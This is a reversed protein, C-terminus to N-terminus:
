KILIKGTRSGQRFIYIGAAPNEVKVGQLNYYEVPEDSDNDIVNDIGTTVGDYVTAGSFSVKAPAGAIVNTFAADAAPAKAPARFSREPTDVSITVNDASTLMRYNYYLQAEVPTYDDKSFAWLAHDEYADASAFHRTDHHIHHVKRYIKGNSYWSEESQKGAAAPLVNGAERDSITGFGKAAPEASHDVTCFWQNRPDESNTAYFADPNSSTHIGTHHEHGTTGEPLPSHWWAGEPLNSETLLKGYAYNGGAEVPAIGATGDSAKMEALSGVVTGLEEATSVPMNDLSLGLYADYWYSHLGHFRESYNEVLVVDDDSSEGRPTPFASSAIQALPTQVFPTTFTYGTEIATATYVTAIPFSYTAYLPATGDEQVPFPLNDITVALTGYDDPTVTLDKDGYRVIYSVKYRDTISEADLEPLNIQGSAKVWNGTNRIAELDTQAQTKFEEATTIGLGNAFKLSIGIEARPGYVYARSSASPMDISNDETVLSLQAEYTRGVRGNVLLVEPMNHDADAVLESADLTYSNADDPLEVTVTEGDKQYVLKADPVFPMDDQTNVTLTYGTIKAKMDDDLSEPAYGNIKVNFTYVDNEVIQAATVNPAIVPFITVVPSEGEYLNADDEYTVSIKYRYQGPTLIGSIYSLNDETQANFDSVEMPTDFTEEKVPDNTYTTGDPDSLYLKYGTLKKTTAIQQQIRYSGKLKTRDGTVREIMAVPDEAALRAVFYYAYSGDTKRASYFSFQRFYKESDFNFNGGQGETVEDRAYYVRNPVVQNSGKSDFTGRGWNHHNSWDASGENREGGWGSWLKYRGVILTNRTNYRTWEANDPVSELDEPNMEVGQRKLENLAEEKTLKKNVVDSDLTFSIGDSTWNHTNSNDVFDIRHRPPWILNYVAQGDEGVDALDGDLIYRKNQTSYAQWGDHWGNTTSAGDTTTNGPYQALNNGVFAVYPVGHVGGEFNGQNPVDIHPTVTLKKTNDNYTISIMTVGNNWVYAKGGRTAVPVEGKGDINTDASLGWEEYSGAGTYKRIAFRTGEQVTFRTLEYENAAGTASATMRYGPNPKWNNFHDGVLYFQPSSPSATVTWLDAVDTNPGSSSYSITITHTDINYDVTAGAPVNRATSAEGGTGNSATLQTPTNATISTTNGYKPDSSLDSGELIKFGTGSTWTADVPVTFTYNPGAIHMMQNKDAVANWGGATVTGVIFVKTATCSSNNHDDVTADGTRTFTVTPNEPDTFDCEFEWIGKTLNWAYTNGFAMDSTSGSTGEINATADKPGFNYDGTWGARERTAFCIAGGNDKVLSISGKFKSSNKTTPNSYVWSLEHAAGTAKNESTTYRFFLRSPVNTTTSTFTVTPNSSDSYDIKFTYTGEPLKWCRTNGKVVKYAVGAEAPLDDDSSDPGYNNNGGWGAASKDAFCIYNNGTTGTFTVPGGTFSKGDESKITTQSYVWSGGNNSYRYYLVAPVNDDVDATKTFTVTPHAADTFDCVFSYTGKPLKWSNTNGLAMEYTGESVTLNSSAGRPGYNDTGSWGNYQKSAFCILGGNEGTFTASATFKDGSKAMNHGFSWVDEGSAAGTPNYRFFLEEPVKAPENGFRLTKESLNLTVETGAPIAINTTIDSGNSVITIPTGLTTVVANSGYKNKWASNSTLLMKTGLNINSPTTLTYANGDTTSFKWADTCGNTWGNHGGVLYYPEFTESGGGGNTVKLIGTDKNFTIVHSPTIAFGLTLNGGKATLTYDQDLNEIKLGGGYDNGESYDRDAIKFQENANATVGTWTYTGGNQSTSPYDGSGGYFRLMLQGLAVQPVSFLACLLGLYLILKKM